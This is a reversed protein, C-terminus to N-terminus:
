FRVYGAPNVAIGFRLMEFHLHPGTSNGTSGVAGLVAGRSVWDGCEVGYQSLHAYYSRWGNGHDLVVLYGYGATNWGAFVVTGSDAAYVSTGTSVALDIGPHWLSYRQTVIYGRTPRIFYGTGSRSVDVNSCLGSGVSAYRVSNSGAQASPISLRMGPTISNPNIINNAAALSGTTVGYRLAIQSLTEGRSVTHVTATQAPAPRASAGSSPINLTQGAYISDPATLGNAAVLGDVTVQYQIAITSLTDGLRITYTQPPSTSGSSGSTSEADGSSSDAVMVEREQAPIRLALGPYIANPNALNNASLLDDVTVGYVLSVRYLSDGRRLTYNAARAPEVTLAEAITDAASQAPVDSGSSAAPQDGPIRLVQGAYISDASRLNNAVVLENVSANYRTAITSLTDGRRITYVQDGGAAAQEVRPIVLTQGAYILNPNNLGNAAVISDVTVGYRLAIANLNEGSRVVHSVAEEDPIAVAGEALAVVGVAPLALSAVIWVYSIIRRARQSVARRRSPQPKLREM